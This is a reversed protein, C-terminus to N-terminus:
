EITSTISSAVWDRVAQETLSIQDKIQQTRYETFVRTTDAIIIWEYVQRIYDPASQSNEILEWKPWDFHSQYWKKSALINIEEETLTATLTIKM